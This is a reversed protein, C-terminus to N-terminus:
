DMYTQIVGEVAERCVPCRPMFAPRKTRTTTLQRKLRQQVNFVARERSVVHQWCEACCRQHRCPLCVVTPAATQCCLCHLDLPSAAPPTAAPLSYEPQTYRTSLAPHDVLHGKVALRRLQSEVIRRKSRKLGLLRVIQAAKFRLTPCHFLALIVDDSVAPPYHRPAM